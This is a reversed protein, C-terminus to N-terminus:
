KKSYYDKISNFVEKGLDTETYIYLEKFEYTKSYTNFNSFGRKIFFDDLNNLIKILEENAPNEPYENKLVSSIVIIIKDKNEDCITKLFGTALSNNRSEKKTFIYDIVIYDHNKICHSIDMFWFMGMHSDDKIHYQIECNGSKRTIVENKM